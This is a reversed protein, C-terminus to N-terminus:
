AARRSLSRQGACVVHEIAQELLARELPASQAIIHAGVEALFLGAVFSFILEM